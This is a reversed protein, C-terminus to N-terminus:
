RQVGFFDFVQADSLNQIEGTLSLKKNEILRSYTVGVNQIFQSPIVQKTDRRGASEWSRFFEHVYRTGGFLTLDDKSSFFKDLQYRITNNLFLYPRNPIRDGEFAGFPGSDSTNIFDFYTSNATITFNRNQSTWSTNVELGRSSANAVNQYVFFNDTGLLIILDQVERLFANMGVGFDSNDSFNTKFNAALNINHSREPNLNVNDFIFLGDGFVELLNPLRTAFEYSTKLKWKENLQYKLSAGWGLNNTTRSADTLAGGNEVEETALVQTYHKVFGIINLADTQRYEYELGNVLTLIENELTLRDIAGPDTILANRGSRTSFTPASSFRLEHADSINYGVNLRNYFTFDDFTVDSPEGREGPTDRIIIEGDLNRSPEGEWTYVLTATDLLQTEARSFGAINEVSFRDAWNKKWKVLGGFTGSGTTIEGYPITMIFNHQLDREGDSFFGKIMFLDAWRQNKIGVDVNIGRALYTDHFRRVTRESLRGRADPIEVDIKYNNRAYDYFGSAQMFFSSGIPQHYGNIALRHTGFSGTQYSIGGGAGEFSQNSVINVAGGLADAGFRVPVVGKYIEVQDVLNVPINAIGFLYGMAELPVGDVFFRIQDNTLGNLSFQADSGLGGSRQVNVGQTRAMVEGLDVTQIKAEQTEIIDVAKASRELLAVESEAQVIVEELESFGENLIFDMTLAENAPVVIARTIKELGVYSLELSYQGPAVGSITYEGKANTITGQQTSPIMVTVGPLPNFQQDAVKGSIVSQGLLITVHSWLLLFTAYFKYITM